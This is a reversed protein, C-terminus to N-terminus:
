SCKVYHSQTESMRIMGYKLWRRRMSRAAEKNGDKCKILDADTFEQPLQDYISDNARRCSSQVVHDESARARELRSRFYLLVQEHLYDCLCDMM